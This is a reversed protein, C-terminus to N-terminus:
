NEALEKNKKFKINNEDLKERSEFEFIKDKENKRSRISKGLTRKSKSRKEDLM